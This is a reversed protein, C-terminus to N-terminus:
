ALAVEKKCKRCLVYTDTTLGLDGFIVREILSFEEGCKSCYKVIKAM